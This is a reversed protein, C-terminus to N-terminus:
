SVPNYPELVDQDILRAVLKKPVCRPKTITPFKRANCFERSVKLFTLCFSLKCAELDIELSPDLDTRSKLTEVGLLLNKVSIIWVLSTSFSNQCSNFKKQLLQEMSMQWFRTFYEWLLVHRSGIYCAIIDNKMHSIPSMYLCLGMNENTVLFM